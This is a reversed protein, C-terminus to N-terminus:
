LGFFSLSIHDLLITLIQGYTLNVQNTERLDTRARIYSKAVDEQFVLDRALFFGFLGSCTIRYDRISDNVVM